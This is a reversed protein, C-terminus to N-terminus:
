GNSVEAIQPLRKCDDRTCQMLVYDISDEFAEPLRAVETFGLRSIFNIAALNNSACFAYIYKRGCHNFIYDFGEELFGHRLVLPSTIMFHCQVSNNTWNDMIWAGVTENTDVDIAMIGSTDEVQKFAVQQQCWGWDSPGHFARFHIRM